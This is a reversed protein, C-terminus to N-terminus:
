YGIDVQSFLKTFDSPAPSEFRMLENTHPHAFSLVAAHLALRKITNRKAGYKEDGLIPHGIDQMHVRIQNKRGTGLDLKMLSLNQTTKLTEYHTISLKGVTTNTTSYVVFAKNEALYSEVSGAATSVKGEVVAIYSRQTINNNWNHQLVTQIAESKAFVLLGSTDRDLRHVIFVKEPQDKAKLYDGLFHYATFERQKDTAISLLGAEKEVVIIYEDEFVIKLGRVNATSRQGNKHISIQQGAELPHNYQTIVRSALTIQKNRLWSKIENRSKSPFTEILFAMLETNAAVNYTKAPSTTNKKHKLKPNM